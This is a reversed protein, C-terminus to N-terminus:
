VCYVGMTEGALADYVEGAVTGFEFFEKEGSGKAQAIFGEAVGKVEAGGDCMELDGARALNGASAEGLELAM